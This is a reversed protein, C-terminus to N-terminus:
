FVELIVSTNGWAKAEDIIEQFAQQDAPLLKRKIAEALDYSMELELGGDIAWLDADADRLLERAIDKITHFVALGNGATSLWLTQGYTTEKKNHLEIM